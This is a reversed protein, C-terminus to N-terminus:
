ERLDMLLTHLGNLEPYRATVDRVYGLTRPIDALYGPKKDRLHLRAFIGTAKLHRQVGMWDFWRLYTADSEPTM